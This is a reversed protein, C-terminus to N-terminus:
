VEEAEEIEEDEAEEEKSIFKKREEWSSFRREPAQCGYCPYAATTVECMYCTPVEEGHNRRDAKKLIRLFHEEVHLRRLNSLSSDHALRISRNVKRLETRRLKSKAFLRSVFDKLGKLHEVSVRSTLSWEGAILEDLFRFAESPRNM